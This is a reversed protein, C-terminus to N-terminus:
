LLLAKQPTSKRVLEVAGLDRNAQHIPIELLQNLILVPLLM